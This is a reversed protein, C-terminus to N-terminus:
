PTPKGYKLRLLTASQQPRKTVVFLNDYEDDRISIPENIGLAVLIFPIVNSHSSIFVTEGARRGLIMQMLHTAYHQKDAGISVTEIPVIYEQSMPQVTELTRHFQTSYIATIGAARLVHTLVGARVLGDKSLRPNDTATDKEAHRAIIITTAQVDTQSLASHPFCLSCVIFLWVRGAFTNRQKGFKM